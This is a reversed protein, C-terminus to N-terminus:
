GATRRRVRDELLAVTREIARRYHSEYRLLTEARSLRDGVEAVAKRKARDIRGEESGDLRMAGEQGERLVTLFATWRDRREAPVPLQGCLLGRLEDDGAPLLEQPRIERYGRFLGVAFDREQTTFSAGSPVVPEIGVDGDGSPFLWYVRVRASVRGSDDMEWGRECGARM